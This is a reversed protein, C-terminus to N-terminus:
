YHIEINSLDEWFFYSEGGFNIRLVTTKEYFYADYVIGLELKIPFIELMKKTHEDFKKFKVKIIKAEKDNIPELRSSVILNEMTNSKLNLLKRHLDNWYASLKEDLESENEQVTNRYFDVTEIADDIKQLDVTILKNEADTITSNM